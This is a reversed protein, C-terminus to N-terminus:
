DWKVRDRLSSHLSIELVLGFDELSFVKSRLRTKANNGTGYNPILTWNKCIALTNEFPHDM